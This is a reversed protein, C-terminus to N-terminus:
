RCGGQLFQITSGVVIIGDVLAVVWFASVLLSHDACYRASYQDGAGPLVQAGDTDSRGTDVRDWGPQDSAQWVTGPQAATQGASTRMFM